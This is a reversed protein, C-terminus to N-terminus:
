SKAAPLGSLLYPAGPPTFPERSSGDNCAFGSVGKPLPLALFGPPGPLRERLGPSLRQKSCVQLAAESRPQLVTQGVMGRSVAMLPWLM